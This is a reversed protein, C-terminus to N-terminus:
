EKKRKKSIYKIDEKISHWKFQVYYRRYEYNIDYKLNRHLSQYYLKSVHPSASYIKTNLLYNIIEEKSAWLGEEINGYYIYDVLPINHYEGKFLLREILNKLIKENNLMCNIKQIKDQNYTQFDIASKRDNGTGDITGDNFHFEKLIDIFEENHISNKLFNLFSYFHEQHISNNSGTKISIYKKVGNAIIVIDPKYNEHFKYAKITINSLDFKFIYKLFNQMNLNMKSYFTKENIYNIIEIERIVGINQQNM